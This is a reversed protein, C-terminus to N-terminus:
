PCTDRAAPDCGEAGSELQRAERDAFAGDAALSQGAGGLDEGVHSRPQRTQWGLLEPGDGEIDPVAHDEVRHERPAAEGADLDVGAVDESREDFGPRAGDEKAMVM